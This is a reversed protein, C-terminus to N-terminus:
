GFEAFTGKHGVITTKFRNTTADLLRGNIYTSAKFTNNVTVALNKKDIAAKIAGERRALEAKMRDIYGGVKAAAKPGLTKQDKQLAVISRKLDASSRFAKSSSKEFGRALAAAVAVDKSDSANGALFNLRPNVSTSRKFPGKLGRAARDASVIAKGNEQAVARGIADANAVDVNLGRSIDGRLNEIADHTRDEVMNRDTADRQRDAAAIKLDSAVKAWNVRGFGSADVPKQDFAAGVNPTFAGTSGAGQHTNIFAFAAAVGAAAVIGLTGIGIGAAGAAAGPIGGAVGGNVNVVAANVNMMGKFSSIVASILGGAINTVLGGTLKNIALGAIALAQIEKPLSKFADVSTKVVRGTIEAASQIAPLFSKVTDFIDKLADSGKKINDESFLGAIKEGLRAVLPINEKIIVNIRGLIKAVAPLIPTGLTAKLDEWNAALIRTQNALGAQTRGFDGQATKSQELILSYAAQARAAAPLVDTYKKQGKGLKVLGLELARNKIITENINIGLSKLPESEGTLGARLKDAAESPDINNFSALDSALQVLSKSMNASQKSTLGMSVFLNGYTAAAALAANQSLGLASASTKGFDLINKAQDKFVVGVKSITESLDSASKIGAVVLATGAVAVGALAAAALKAGNQIGHGIQQGAQFARSQSKALHTDFNSLAKDVKKLPGTFGDKLSLSALLNATDALAM